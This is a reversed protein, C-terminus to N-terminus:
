HSMFGNGETIFPGQIHALSTCVLFGTILHEM